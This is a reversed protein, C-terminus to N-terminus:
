SGWYNYWLLFRLLYCFIGWFIVCFKILLGSYLCFLGEGLFCCIFFGSNMFELWFYCYGIVCNIVKIWFEKLVLNKLEMDM